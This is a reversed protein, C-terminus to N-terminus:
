KTQPAANHWNPQFFRIVAPFFLKKHRSLRKSGGPQMGKARRFSGPASRGCFFLLVIFAAKETKM